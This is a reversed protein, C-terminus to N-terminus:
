QSFKTMNSVRCLSVLLNGKVTNRFGIDTYLINYISM